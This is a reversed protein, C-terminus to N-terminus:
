RSDPLRRAVCRIQVRRKPEDIQEPALEPEPAPGWTLDPELEARLSDDSIAALILDRDDRKVVWGLDPDIRSAISMAQEASEFRRRWFM